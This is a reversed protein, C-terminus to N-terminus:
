QNLQILKLNNSFANVFDVIVLATPVLVAAAVVAEEEAAAAAVPLVLVLVSVLPRQPSPHNLYSPL